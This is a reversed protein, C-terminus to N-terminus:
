DDTAGYGLREEIEDRIIQKLPSSDPLQAHFAILNALHQQEALAATAEVRAFSIRVDERLQRLKVPDITDLVADAAVLRPLRIM